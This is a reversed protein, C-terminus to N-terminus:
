VPPSPPPSSSSPSPTTTPPPPSAPTPTVPSSHSDPPPSSADSCVPKCSACEVTCSDPCFKPCVHVLNYCNKYEKNKCTAHSPHNAIGPPTAEAMALLMLLLIPVLLLVKFRAMSATPHTYKNPPSHGQAKM